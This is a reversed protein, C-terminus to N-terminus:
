GNDEELRILDRTYEKLYQRIAGQLTAPTMFRHQYEFLDDIKNICRQAAYFKREAKTGDGSVLSNDKGM